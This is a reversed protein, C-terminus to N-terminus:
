WWRFRRRLSPAPRGPPHVRGDTGGAWSPFVALGRLDLAPALQHRDAATVVAVGGSFNSASIPIGTGSMLRM